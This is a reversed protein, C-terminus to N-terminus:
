RAGSANASRVAGGLDISLLANEENKDEAQAVFPVNPLVITLVRVIATNEIEQEEDLRDANLARRKMREWIGPTHSELASIAEQIQEDTYFTGM